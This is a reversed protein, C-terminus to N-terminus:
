VTHEPIDDEIVQLARQIPYNTINFKVKFKDMFFTNSMKALLVVQKIKEKGILKKLSEQTAMDWEFCAGLATYFFAQGKFCKVLLPEMGDTPCILFLCNESTLGDISM